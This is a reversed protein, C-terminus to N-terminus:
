SIDTSDFDYIGGSMEYVRILRVPNEYSVIWIDDNTDVVMSKADNIILGSKQLDITDQLVGSLNYKLLQANTGSASGPLLFWLDSGNVLVDVPSEEIDGRSIETTSTLPNSKSIIEGLLTSDNYAVYIYTSDLDIAVIESVARNLSYYTQTPKFKACKELICNGDTNQAFAIWLFDDLSDSKQTTIQKDSSFNFRRNITM